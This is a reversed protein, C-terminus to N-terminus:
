VVGGEILVILSDLGDHPGRTGPYGEENNREAGAVMRGDSEGHRRQRIRYGPLSYAAPQLRECETRRRGASESTPQNQVYKSVGDHLNCSLSAIHKLINIILKICKSNIDLVNRLFDNVTASGGSSISYRSFFTSDLSNELIACPTSSARRLNLCASSLPSLGQANQLTQKLFKHESVENQTFLKGSCMCDNTM